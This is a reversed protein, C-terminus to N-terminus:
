IVQTGFNEPMWNVTAIDFWMDDWGEDLAGNKLVTISLNQNVLDFDLLVFGADTEGTAVIAEMDARYAMGHIRTSTHIGYTTSVVEYDVKVTHHNSTLMVDGDLVGFDTGFLYRRLQISYELGNEKGRGIVYVYWGANHPRPVLVPVSAFFTFNETKNANLPTASVLKAFGDALITSALRIESIPVGGSVGAVVCILKNQLPVLTCGSMIKGTAFVNIQATAIQWVFCEAQECQHVNVCKMVEDDITQDGGQTLFLSTGSDDFAISMTMTWNQLLPISCQPADPDKYSLIREMNYINVMNGIVVAYRRAQASVFMDMALLSHMGDQQMANLNGSLKTMGNSQFWNAPCPSTLRTKDVACVVSDTTTVGTCKGHQSNYGEECLEVCRRCVNSQNFTTTSCETSIFEGPACPMCPACVRSVGFACEQILYHGTPCPSFCTTDLICESDKTDTCSEMDPKLYGAPCETTCPKCEPAVFSGECRGSLYFQDGHKNKASCEEVTVCKTCGVDEDTTSTVDMSCRRSMWHTSPCECPICHNVDTKTEGDCNNVLYTDLPCQYQCKVCQSPKLSNEFPTAYQYQMLFSSITADCNFIKYYGAGCDIPNCPTCSTSCPKNVYYGPDCLPPCTKCEVTSESTHGFCRDYRISGEDCVPCSTCELTGFLGQCPASIYEDLGCIGCWECLSTDVDSDGECQHTQREGLQCPSTRENLGNYVKCPTCKTDSTSYMSCSESIYHGKGCSATCAQCGDDEINICDSVYQGTEACGLSENNINKCTDLCVNDTYGLGSCNGALQFGPNCGTTCPVCEVNNEGCVGRMYYGPTCVTCAICTIGDSTGSGTCTGEKYFGKDCTSTCPSCKRDEQGKRSCANDSIFNDRGCDTTCDTCVDDASIRWEEDNLNNVNVEQGMCVKEFYKGVGCTHNKDVGHTCSECKADGQLNCEKSIYQGFTCRVICPNCSQTPQFVRMKNHYCGTVNPASTNNLITDNAACAGSCERGKHFGNCHIENCSKCIDGNESSANCPIDIYNTLNCGKCPICKGTSPFMLGSCAKCALGSTEGMCYTQNSSGNRPVYYGPGAPNCVESKTMDQWTGKACEQINFGTGCRHGVPCGICKTSGIGETYWGGACQTCESSGSYSSYTGLACQKLTENKVYSGAPAQMCENTTSNRYMGGVCVCKVTREPKENEPCKFCKSLGETDAVLNNECDQCKAETCMGTSNNFITGGCGPESCFTGVTCNKCEGRGDAYQGAGCVDCTINSKRVLNSGCGVFTSNRNHCAECMGHDLPFKPVTGNPCMPCTENGISYSGEGCSVCTNMTLKDSTGDPYHFTKEGTKKLYMASNGDASVTCTSCASAGSSSFLSSSQKCQNDVIDAWIYGMGGLSDPPSYWGAPVQVCKRDEEYTGNVCFKCSLHKEMGDWNDQRRGPIFWVTHARDYTWEYAGTVQNEQAIDKQFVMYSNHMSFWDAYSKVFTDINVNTGSGVDCIECKEAPDMVRMNDTGPIIKSKRRACYDEPFYWLSKHERGWVNACKSALFAARRKDDFTWKSSMEGKGFKDHMQATWDEDYLSKDVAAYLDIGGLLRYLTYRQVNYPNSFSYLLELLTNLKPDPSVLMRLVQKIGFNKVTYSRRTYLTGSEEQLELEHDKYSCSDGCDISHDALASSMSGRRLDLGSKFDINNCSATILNYARSEEHMAQRVVPDKIEAHPNQNDGMLNCHSKGEEIQYADIRIGICRQADIGNPCAYGRPCIRCYCKRGSPIGMVESRYGNSVHYNV